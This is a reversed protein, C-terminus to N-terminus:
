TLMSRLVIYIVFTSPTYKKLSYSTSIIVDYSFLLRLCSSVRNPFTFMRRMNHAEDRKIRSNNKNLTNNSINTDLKWPQKNWMLLNIDFCMPSEKLKLKWAIVRNVGELTIYYQHIPRKVPIMFLNVYTYTKAFSPSYPHFFTTRLSNPKSHQPKIHAAWVLSLSDLM